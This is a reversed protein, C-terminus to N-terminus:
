NTTPKSILNAGDVWGQVCGAHAVTWRTEHVKVMMKEVWEKSHHPKGM